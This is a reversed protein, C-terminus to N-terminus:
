SPGHLQDPCPLTLHLPAFAHHSSIRLSYMDKGIAKYQLVGGITLPEWTEAMLTVYFQNGFLSADQSWSGNYGQLRALTSSRVRGHLAVMERLTLGLLDATERYQVDSASDGIIPQAFFLSSHPAL